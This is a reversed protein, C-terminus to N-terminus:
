LDVSKGNCTKSNKTWPISKPELFGKCLAWNRIGVLICSFECQFREGFQLYMFYRKNAVLLWEQLQRPPQAIQMETCVKHQCTELKNSRGYLWLCSFCVRAGHQDCTALTQRLKRHVHQLNFLSSVWWTPFSPLCWWCIELGKSSCNFTPAKKWALNWVFNGFKNCSGYM